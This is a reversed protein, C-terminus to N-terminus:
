VGERKDTKEADRLKIGGLEVTKSVKKRRGEKQTAPKSQFKNEQAQVEEINPYERQRM